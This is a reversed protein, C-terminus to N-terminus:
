IMNPNKQVQCASLVCFCPPITFHAVIRMMMHKTMNTSRMRLSISKRPAYPKLSNSHVKSRTNNTLSEGEVKVSEKSSLRIKFKSLYICWSLVIRRSLQYQDKGNKQHIVQSNHSSCARWLACRNYNPSPKKKKAFLVFLVQRTNIKQNGPFNQLKPVSIWQNPSSSSVWHVLEKKKLTFM